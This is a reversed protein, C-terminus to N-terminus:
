DLRGRVRQAVGRAHWAGHHLMRDRHAGLPLPQRGALPQERVQLLVRRRRRQAVRLHGDGPGAGSGGRGVRRDDGAEVDVPVVVGERREAAVDVREVPDHRLPAEHAAPDVGQGHPELHVATRERDDRAGLLRDVHEGEDGVERTVIEVREGYGPQEGVGPEPAAGDRGDRVRQRVVVEGADRDVELVQRAGDVRRQEPEQPREFSAQRAVAPEDGLRDRAVVRAPRHLPVRRDVVVDEEHQVVLVIRRVVRARDRALPPECVMEGAHQRAHRRGLHDHAQALVAVLPGVGRLGRSLQRELVDHLQRAVVPTRGRHVAGRQVGGERPVVGVRRAVDDPEQVGRGGVVLDEAGAREADRAHAHPPESGLIRREPRHEVAASESRRRLCQVRDADAIVHLEDARALDQAHHRLGREAPAHHPGVGSRAPDHHVRHQLRRGGIHDLAIAPLLVGDRQREVVPGIGGPCREDEVRELGAVGGRGKEDDPLIGLEMGLQQAPHQTLPVLDAIMRERVGIEREDARPERAVLQGGGLPQDLRDRVTAGRQEAGGIEPVGLRGGRVLEPGDGHGLREAVDGDPQAVVRAVPELRADGLDDPFAQSLEIAAM